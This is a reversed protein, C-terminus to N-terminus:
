KEKASIMVNKAVIGSRAHWTQCLLHGRADFTKQFHRSLETPTTDLERVVDAMADIRAIMMNIADENEKIALDVGIKQFHNQM